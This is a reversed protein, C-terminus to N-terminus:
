RQMELVLKNNKWWRLTNDSIASFDSSLLYYFIADEQYTYHRGCILFSAGLKEIAIAEGVKDIIGLFHNCGLNGTVKHENPSIHITLPKNDYTSKLENIGEVFVLRWTGAINQWSSVAEPQYAVFIVKDDQLFQLQKNKIRYSTVHVLLDIFDEELQMFSNDCKKKTNAVTISHFRENKDPFYGNLVNCGFSASFTDDNIEFFASESDLFSVLYESDILAMKWKGNYDDYTEKNNHYTSSCAYLFFLFVCVWMKQM